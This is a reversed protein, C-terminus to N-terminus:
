CTTREVRIAPEVKDLMELHELIGDELISRMIGGKPEKIREFIRGNKEM